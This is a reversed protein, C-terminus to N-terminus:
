LVMQDCFTDVDIQSNCFCPFLTTQLHLALDQPAHSLLARSIRYGKRWLLPVITGTQRKGLVPWVCHRISRLWPQPKGTPDSTILSASASHPSSVFRPATNGHPFYSYPQGLSFVFSFYSHQVEAVLTQRQRSGLPCCAFRQSARRGAHQELPQAASWQRNSSETDRGQKPFPM